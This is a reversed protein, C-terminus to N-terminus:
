SNYFAQLERPNMLGGKKKVAQGNRVIVLTPVREAELFKMAATEKESDVMALQIDPNITMFRELVKIMNKCHPCEEKKVLIIGDKIRSIEDKVNDNTLTAFEM